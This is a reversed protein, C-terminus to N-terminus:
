YRDDVYIEGPSVTARHVLWVPNIRAISSYSNGFSIGLAFREAATGNPADSMEFLVFSSSLPLELPPPLSTLLSSFSRLLVLGSFSRVKSKTPPSFFKQCTQVPRAFKAMISLKHLINSIIYDTVHHYCILM